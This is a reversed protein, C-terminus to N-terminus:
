AGKWIVAPALAARTDIHGVAFLEPVLATARAVNEPAVIVLMGAGLNFVARMEDRAVQGRWALIEFPEPWPWPDLVMALGADL